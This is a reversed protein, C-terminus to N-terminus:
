ESAAITLYGLEYPAVKESFPAAINQVFLPDVIIKYFSATFYVQM